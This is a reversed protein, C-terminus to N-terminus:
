GGMMMGPLFLAIQPFAILIAVCVVMALVFPWIGAFITYMPVDRAIGAVVFVNMGVPPTILGMEVIIVILVAFWLLNVELAVLTPLLVPLLLVMMPMTDIFFGLIVFIGLICIIIAVRPFPLGAVFDALEGSLGSVGMFYGFITAGIIIPFVMGTTRFTDMFGEIFNEKTLRRNGLAMLFAFFTGAAAAETPTFIGMYIGGLVVLFLVLVGWFDKVTIIRELWSAKPGPPGLSPNLRCQIYITLMFLSALLIGPFIGAIFLRGISEETIIGFLVLAMSPPILIGLTGGAAICGTSLKPSYNYQRMEPMAISAMTVAGAVSSSSCAAFGACAGITAIALGGPLHGVWKHAGYYAQTVLGSVSAFHAMLIFLPIVAILYFATMSWTILGLKILAAGTGSVLVTGIFGSVGMAFGIPLGLAMFLVLALIGLTGIQLESM